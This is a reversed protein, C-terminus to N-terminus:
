LPYKIGPPAPYDRTLIERLFRTVVKIRPMFQLDHHVTMWIIRSQSVEHGLVRVLGFREARMFEPLMVIGAGAAASFMQAVMSSSNYAFRPASVAQTLWRVSDLQVLDDIYSVFLHRRLDDPSSLQKHQQLYGPAAYLYLSFKGVPMIDLGKGDYPSFSLFLDAERRNVYVQHPSTVLEIHVQPYVQNFAVFQESLYFSAIGEMTGIRVSGAPIKRDHAVAEGKLSIAHSEMAEIHAILAQGRATMKLGTPDREFVPMNLCKELHAIHRSVTSVDIKLQRAARSLNGTRAVELFIRLDNWNPDQPQM